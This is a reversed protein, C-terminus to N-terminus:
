LVQCWHNTSTTRLDQLHDTTLPELTLFNVGFRVMLEILRAPKDLKGAYKIASSRALTLEATSLDLGEIMSKSTFAAIDGEFNLINSMVTTPSKCDFCTFCVGCSQM